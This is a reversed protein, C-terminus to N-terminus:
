RRMRMIQALLNGLLFSITNMKRQCKVKANTSMNSSGCGNDSKGVIGVYSPMCM